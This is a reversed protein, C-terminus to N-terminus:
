CTCVRPSIFELRRLDVVVPLEGDRALEDQLVAAVEDLEGSVSVVRCSDIDRSSVSFSEWM